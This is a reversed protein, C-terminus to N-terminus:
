RRWRQLMWTLAYTALCGITLAELTWLYVTSYSVHSVGLGFLPFLVIMAASFLGTQFSLCSFTRSM